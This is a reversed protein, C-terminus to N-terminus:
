RGNESLSLVPIEHYSAFLGVLFECGNGWCIEKKQIKM